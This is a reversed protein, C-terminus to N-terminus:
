NELEMALKEEANIDEKEAQARVGRIPCWEM